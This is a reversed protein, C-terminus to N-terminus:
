RLRVVTRLVQTGGATAVLAYCSNPRMPTKWKTTFRGDTYTIPTLATAPGIAPGASNQCSIPAVTVGVSAPNTLEVAGFFAEFAIPVSSGAKAITEAAALPAKFGTSSWTSTSGPAVTTTQGAVTLSVPTSGLNTTNGNDDVEAAGGSPVTVQVNGTPSAIQVDGATVEAIVSGCTLTITSGASLSVTFGGCLSLRVRGTGSGGVTVVIGDLPDPVDVISVPLGDPNSTISGTAGLDPALTNSVTYSRTITVSGGDADTATTTFSKAGPSSTDIAQGDAVSGVCSEVGAPATCEYDAAVTQGLDFAAGETPITVSVAPGESIPIVTMREITSTILGTCRQNCELPQSLRRFELSMYKYQFRELALAGIPISTDAFITTDSNPQQLSVSALYPRMGAIEGALPAFTSEDPTLEYFDARYHEEYPYFDCNNGNCMDNIVSVSRGAATTEFSGALIVSQTVAPYAAADAQQYTPAM